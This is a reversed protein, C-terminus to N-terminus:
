IRAVTATAASAKMVRERYILYVGSAIIIAAGVLTWIDPLDGFVLYGLATMSLLQVYVFPAITSAPATRNALIFLYHGLAGFCGVISMLTWELPSKPWVWGAIAFPALLFVGAFLSYFLTTMTEDHASLYRTLLMFLAYSVMSALAFLMAPEFATMGPRVVVLIGCFGVLIASLRRWGVWEGLIPGALLAVMLPTLFAFTTTQDLRLDNLAFFNFVTSSMLLVSRVLQWGPKSARLLRPVSVLGMVVLIAALQGLFRAWAVEILPIRSITVLYKATADLAAFCTVAAMMLLIAKLPDAAVIPVRRETRPATESGPETVSKQM